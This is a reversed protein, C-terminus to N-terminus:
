IETIEFVGKLTQKLKGLTLQQGNPVRCGIAAVKSAGLLYLSIRQSDNAAVKNANLFKFNADKAELSHDTQEVFCMIENRLAPSINVLEGAVFILDSNNINKLALEPSILKFNYSLSNLETVLINDKSAAANNAADEALKKTQDAASNANEATEEAEKKRQERAQRGKEKNKEYDTKGCSAVTLVTTVAFIFKLFNRM